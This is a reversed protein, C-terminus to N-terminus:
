SAPAANASETRRIVMLTQDDSQATDSSFRRVDNLCIAAFQELAQDRWEHALHAISEMGYENGNRDRAESIGDTYLLLSEGPELKVREFAYHSTAFMGLPLGTARVQKIGDSSVVLAPCHGASAIQVEGDRGASGCILTAFQGAM